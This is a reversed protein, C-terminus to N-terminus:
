LLAFAIGFCVILTATSLSVVVLAEERHRDLDEMGISRLHRPSPEAIRGVERLKREAQESRFFQPGAPQAKRGRKNLEPV